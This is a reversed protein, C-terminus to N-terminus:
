HGQSFLITLFIFFFYGVVTFVALLVAVGGGGIGIWSWLRTRAADVSNRALVLGIIGLVLAIVPLCYFTSGCTLCTLLVLVGSALAILATLDIGNGLFTAKRPEDIKPTTPAQVTAGGEVTPSAVSSSIENM